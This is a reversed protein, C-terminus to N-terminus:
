EKKKGGWVREWLVRIIFLPNYYCYRWWLRRPEQIFRYLWELGNDQMWDPAQKVTGAIFDFGAGVAVLVPCTLKDAMRAIWLEQKPAGLAVWLITAGSDNIMRAIKDEEAADLARFPPAYAGVVRASPFRTAVATKLKGLTDDTSGYFFHTFGHDAPAKLCLEFFDPGYVRTRIKEGWSRMAWVLPMGDPVTLAAPHNLAEM